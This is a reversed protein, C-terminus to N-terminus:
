FTVIARNTLDCSTLDVAQIRINSIAATPMLAPGLELYGDQDAFGTGLLRMSSNLGLEVGACPLGAPITTPGGIGNAALIAVQGFPTAGAIKVKMPSGAFGSLTLSFNPNPGERFVCEGWFQFPTIWDVISSTTSEPDMTWLFSDLYYLTGQADFCFSQTSCCTIGEHAPNLNTLLATNPDITALGVEYPQVYLQGDFYDLGVMSADSGIDGVLTYIGTALDLTYLDHPSLGLPFLRKNIFYLTDNDDFAMCVFGNIDVHTIFITQATDPDIEYIDWGHLDDGNGTYLQGQSDFALTNWERGAGPSPTGILSGEGSLPEISYLAGSFAEQAIIEQAATSSNAAFAALMFASFRRMLQLPAIVADGM